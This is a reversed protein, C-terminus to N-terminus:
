RGLLGRPNAAPDAVFDARTLDRVRALLRPQGDLGVGGEQMTLAAVISIGLTSPDEEARDMLYIPASVSLGDPRLSHASPAFEFDARAVDGERRPNSWRGLHHALQDVGGPGHTWRGARGGLLSAVQDLTVRDLEFPWGLAPGVSAVALGLIRGNGSRDVRLPSALAPWDLGAGARLAVRQVPLTLPGAACAAAVNHAHRKDSERILREAERRAFRADSEAIIAAAEARAATADREIAARGVERAHAVVDDVSPPRPASRLPYRQGPSPGAAALLAARARGIPDGPAAATTAATM